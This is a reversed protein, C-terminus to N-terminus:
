LKSIGAGYAEVDSKSVGKTKTKGSPIGLQMLKRRRKAELATLGTRLKQPDKEESLDFLYLRYARGIQEVWNVKKPDYDRPLVAPLRDILESKLDDPIDIEKKEMNRQFRDYALDLRVMGRDSELAKFRDEYPDPGDEKRASKSPETGMIKKEVAQMFQVPAMKTHIALRKAIPYMMKDEDLMKKHNKAAEEHSRFQPLGWEKLQETEGDAIFADLEEQTYEEKGEAELREAEEAELRAAKEEETEEAELRKAEEKEALLEEKLVEEEPSLEGLEEKELLENLDM